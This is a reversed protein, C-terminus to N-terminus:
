WVCYDSNLAPPPPSYVILCMEYHLNMFLACMQGLYEYM